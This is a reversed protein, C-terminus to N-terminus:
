IKMIIIIIIIIIFNAMIKYILNINIDNRNRRKGITIMYALHSVQLNELNDEFCYISNTSQYSNNLFMSDQWFSIFAKGVDRQYFNNDFINSGNILDSPALTPITLPAILQKKTYKDFEIFYCKNM